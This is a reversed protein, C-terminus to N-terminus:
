FDTEPIIPKKRYLAALRKMLIETNVQQPRRYDSGDNVDIATAMTSM